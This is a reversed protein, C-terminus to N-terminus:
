PLDDDDEKVACHEDVYQYFMQSDVFKDMFARDQHDANYVM